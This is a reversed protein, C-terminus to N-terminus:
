VGNCGAKRLLHRWRNRGQNKARTKRGREAAKIRSAHQAVKWYTGWNHFVEFQDFTHLRRPPTDSFHCGPYSM